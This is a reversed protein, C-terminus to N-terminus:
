FVDTDAVELAELEAYYNSLDPKEGYRPYEHLKMYPRSNVELVACKQADWDVYPGKEMILDIGFIRAGFAELIKKALAQNKPTIKELELNKVIGGPALAVRHFLKVRQGKDPVSELNLQQSKLYRLVPKSPMLPHMAPYIKMSERIANEATMLEAITSVGDGDVYPEFRESAAIIQGNCATIRYNGGPIYEEIVLWPWYVRALFMAKWLEKYSNIPFFSGRSFSSLNPKIVVPFGYDKVFKLATFPNLFICGRAHIIDHEAFKTRGQAKTRCTRRVELSNYNSCDPSFFGNVVTQYFWRQVTKLM